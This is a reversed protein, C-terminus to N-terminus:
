PASRTAGIERCTGGLDVAGRRGAGEQVLRNGQAHRRSHPGAHRDHLWGTSGRGPSHFGPSSGRIAHCRDAPVAFRALEAATAPDTLQHSHSVELLLDLLDLSRFRTQQIVGLRRGPPTQKLEALLGEAAKHQLRTQEILESSREELRAWMGAYIEEHTEDDPLPTREGLLRGIAWSRCTPCTLLHLLDTSSHPEEQPFDAM